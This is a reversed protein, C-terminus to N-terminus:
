CESYVPNYSTFQHDESFPLPDLEYPYFFSDAPGIYVDAPGTYVHPRSSTRRRESPLPISAPDVISLAASRDLSLDLSPTVPADSEDDSTDEIADPVPLDDVDDADYYPLPDDYFSSISHLPAEIFPGLEYSVLPPHFPPYPVPYPVAIPAPYYAHPNLLDDSSSLPSIQPSFQQDEDDEASSVSGRIDSDPNLEDDGEDYLRELLSDLWEAESANV